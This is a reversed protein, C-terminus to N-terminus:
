GARSLRYRGRPHSSIPLGSEHRSRCVSETLLRVPRPPAQVFGQYITGPSPVSPPRVPSQPVRLRTDTWHEGPHSQCHTGEAPAPCQVTALLACFAGLLRRLRRSTRKEQRFASLLSALLPCSTAPGRWRRPKPPSYSATECQSRDSVRRGITVLYGPSQAGARVALVTEGRWTPKPFNLAWRDRAVRHM